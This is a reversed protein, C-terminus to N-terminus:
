VVKSGSMPEGAVRLLITLFEARTVTDDPRLKPRQNDSNGNLVRAQAFYTLTNEAWHGKIDTPFYMSLDPQPQEASTQRPLADLSIFLICALVLGFEEM